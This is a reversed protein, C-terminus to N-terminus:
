WSSRGHYIDAASWRSLSFYHSWLCCSFDGTWLRQDAHFVEVVGTDASPMVSCPGLLGRPRQTVSVMYEWCPCSLLLCLSTNQQVRSFQDPIHLDSCGQSSWSIINWSCSLISWPLLCDILQLSSLELLDQQNEFIVEELNLVPEDQLCSIFWFCCSAQMCSCPAGSQASANCPASAPVPSGSPICLCHGLMCPHWCSLLLGGPTSDLSSFSPLVSPNKCIDWCDFVSIHSHLSVPSPIQQSHVCFLNFYQIGEKCREKNALNATLFELSGLGTQLLSSKIDIFSSLILSHKFCISM